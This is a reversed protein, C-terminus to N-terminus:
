SMRVVEHAEAAMYYRQCYKQQRRRQQKVLATLVHLEVKVHLVDGPRHPVALDASRGGFELGFSFKYVCDVVEM